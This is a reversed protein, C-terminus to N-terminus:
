TWLIHRDKPLWSAEAELRSLVSTWRFEAHEFFYRYMQLFSFSFFVDFQRVRFACQGLWEQLLRQHDRQLLGHQTGSPGRHVSPAPGSPSRGESPVPYVLGLGKPLLIRQETRKAIGPAGLETRTRDSRETRLALLRTRLTRQEQEFGSAEMKFPLINRGEKDMKATQFLVGKLLFPCTVHRSIQYRTEKSHSLIGCDARQFHDSRWVHPKVPRKRQKRM